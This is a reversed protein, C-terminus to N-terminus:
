VAGMARGGAYRYARWHVFLGPLKCAVRWLWLLSRGLHRRYGKYKRRVWRALTRDFQDFVFKRLVTKGQQGYYNWWGRLIPNYRAALETISAQTQRPLKWSRITRLMKTAAERSVAPSFHHFLRGNRSKAVRPRFTFGLFTFQRNANRRHPRGTRKCYVVRSKDPHIQLGCQRLRRGIADLMFVAQPKSQCHVVADDAYRAFPCQPEEIQMWRDFCYHMFLNMLAPGIVSGQPVGRTRQVTTGDPKVFPATLWREIYLVAWREKVHKRVARLLLDHDLEDFAKRIDFEVAWAYDWCRDTTVQVAHLAAKGPRYGYSDPHFLQELEPEIAKKVVTQAIRDAVTPIGLTRVGGNKKPIEVLRVPPPFYSGSCMRNWILYLNDKLNAEFLEITERDIGAAGQNSKVHKFAEWVVRKGIGFPKVSRALEEGNGPQSVRGTPVVGSSRELGM